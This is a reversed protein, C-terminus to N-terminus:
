RDIKMDQRTSDISSKLEKVRSSYKLRVDRNLEFVWTLFESEFRTKVLQFSSEIEIVRSSAILRIISMVYLHIKNDILEKMYLFEYILLYIMKIKWDNIFNIRDKM